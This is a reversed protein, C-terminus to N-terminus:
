VGLKEWPELLVLFLDVKSASLFSFMRVLALRGSMESRGSMFLRTVGALGLLPNRPRELPGTVEEM